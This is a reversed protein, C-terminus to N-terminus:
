AASPLESDTVAERTVRVGYDSDRMVVFRKNNRAGYLAVKRKVESASAGQLVTSQGVELAAVSPFGFARAM